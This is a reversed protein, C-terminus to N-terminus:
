KSEGRRQLFPASIAVQYFLESFRYDKEALTGAIIDIACEDYYELGRGTAYILTKEILCRVFQDRMKTAIAQQVELAGSFQTGNPLLGVSDIPSGNEDDRWRGVADYNELAFGLEDMVTHCVACNPDARHQELRERVTGTLEAQEELAMATPDPPPPEEGLLNEMIWKGRKVPSTRTPNSTLTLISAHTLLGVRGTKSTLVKVFSEGEIGTIGYYGALRQNVFTFESSLLDTIKADQRILEQVLLKTETIMDSRMQLDIGPFLDPDPQVSELHSLQLWQTVFNDVLAVSKPDALMREFQERYIAPNNLKGESALQFLSEDPMTSWLFYSLSTALEFDNL